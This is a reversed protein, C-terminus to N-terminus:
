YHMDYYCDRCMWEGEFPIYEAHESGCYRCYGPTNKREELERAAKEKEELEKREKELIEAKEEDPYEYERSAKFPENMILEPIIGGNFKNIWKYELEPFISNIHDLATGCIIMKSKDKVEWYKYTAPSGDFNHKSYHAWTLRHKTNSKVTKEKIVPKDDGFYLMLDLNDTFCIWPDVNKVIIYDDDQTDSIGFLSFLQKKTTKFNQLFKHESQGHIYCRLSSIKRVYGERQITSEITSKFIDKIEVDNFGNRHIDFSIFESGCCGTDKHIRIEM